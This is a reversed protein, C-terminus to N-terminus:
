CLVVMFNIIKHKQIMKCWVPATIWLKISMKHGIKVEWLHLQPGSFKPLNCWRMNWLNCLIWLSMYLTNSLFGELDYLDLNTSNVWRLLLFLFVESFSQLRSQNFRGHRWREEKILSHHLFPHCTLWSLHSSNAATGTQYRSCSSIQIDVPLRWM